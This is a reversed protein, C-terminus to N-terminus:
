AKERMKQLLELYENVTAEMIEKGKEATAAQPCGYAGTKSSTHGWTSWFVKANHRTILDGDVFRNRTKVPEDEAESMDVRKEMGLM